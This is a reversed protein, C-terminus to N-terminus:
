FKETVKVILLVSVAIGIVTASGIFVGVLDLM